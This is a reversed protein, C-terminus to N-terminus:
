RIYLRLCLGAKVRVRVRMIRVRAWFRFRVSVTARIKVMGRVQDMYRVGVTVRFFSFGKM